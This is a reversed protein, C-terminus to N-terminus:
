SIPNYLLPEKFIAQVLLSGPAMFVKNHTLLKNPPCYGRKFLECLWFKRKHLTSLM